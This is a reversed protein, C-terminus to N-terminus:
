AYLYYIGVPCALGKLETDWFGLSGFLVTCGASLSTLGAIVQRSSEGLDM